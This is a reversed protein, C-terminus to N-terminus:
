IKSLIKTIFLLISIIVRNINQFNLFYSEIDIRPLIELIKINMSFPPM